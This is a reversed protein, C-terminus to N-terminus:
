SVDAMEHRGKPEDSTAERLVAQQILGNVLDPLSLEQGATKNPYKSARALAQPQSV